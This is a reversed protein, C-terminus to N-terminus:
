RYRNRAWSPYLHTIEGPTLRAQELCEDVYRRRLHIVRRQKPRANPRDIDARLQGSDILAYVSRVDLGLLRAAAQVTIEEDGEAPMSSITHPRAPFPEGPSPRDRTTWCPIQEGSDVHPGLLWKTM